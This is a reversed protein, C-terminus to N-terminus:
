SSFAGLPLIVARDNEPVPMVPRRQEMTNLSPEDWRADHRHACGTSSNRHRQSLRVEDRGRRNIGVTVLTVVDHGISWFGDHEEGTAEVGSSREGDGAIQPKGTVREADIVALAVAGFEVGCAANGSRLPDNAM